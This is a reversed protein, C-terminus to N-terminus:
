GGLEGIRRFYAAYFLLVRAAIYLGVLLSFGLPYLLASIRIASRAEDQYRRALQHCTEALSGTEEGNRYLNGFLSPFVRTEGALEPGLKLGARAKGALRGAAQKLGPAPLTTAVADWARDVALGAELYAGLLFAADALDQNKRFRRLFPLCALLGDLIRSRERAMLWFWGLALWTLLLVPVVTGLYGELDFSLGGDASVMGPLPLLVLALHLITLPYILAGIVTRRLAAQEGARTEVQKLTDVLRGTRAGAQLLKLEVAPLWGTLAQWGAEPTGATAVAQKFAERARTPLGRTERVGDLIPLGAELANHLQSYLTERASPGLAM